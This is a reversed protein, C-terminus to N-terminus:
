NVVRVAKMIGDEGILLEAKIKASENEVQMDIGMALLSSRPLEVRVIQGNEDAEPDYAFTLAQFEGFEETQPHARRKVSRAKMVHPRERGGKRVYQHPEIVYSQIEFSDFVAPALQPVDVPEIEGHIDHVVVSSFYSQTALRVIGIVGGVFAVFVGLTALATQRNLDRFGHWGILSHGTGFRTQESDIATRIPDFLHPAAAIKEIEEHPLRLANLVKDGIRYVEKNTVDLKKM